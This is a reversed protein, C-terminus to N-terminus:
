QCKTSMTHIPRNLQRKRRLYTGVRMRLRKRPRNRTGARRSTLTPSNPRRTNEGDAELAVDAVLVALVPDDPAPSFALEPWNGSVGPNEEDGFWLGDPPPM